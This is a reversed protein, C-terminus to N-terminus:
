LYRQCYVVAFPAGDFHAHLLRVQGPDLREILEVERLRRIDRSRPKTGQGFATIEFAGFRDQQDAVRAGALAMEGGAQGDAGATLTASHAEGGGRCQDVLEDFRLPFVVETPHQGAPRTYLQDDDIFEAIDRQCFDGGFEEEQNM